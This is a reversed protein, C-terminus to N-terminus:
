HKHYENWDIKIIKNGKILLLAVERDLGIGYFDLNVLTYEAYTTTVPEHSYLGDFFLPNVLEIRENNIEAIFTLEALNVIYLTSGHYKFTSFVQFGWQDLKIEFGKSKDRYGLAEGNVPQGIKDLAALTLKTPDPIAKIRVFGNGHGLNALLTYGNEDKAVTNTCTSETFFTKGTSKQFFYATGGWEGSCDSYVIYFDDEFLIPRNKLPFKSKLKIWDNNNWVYITKGALGALQGNIIWHYRFKKTNLKNALEQDPDFNELKFCAFSGNEFLSVLRNDYIVSYSKPFNKVVTKEEEAEEYKESFYPNKLIIQATDFEIYKNSITVKLKRGMPDRYLNEKSLGSDPFSQQKFHAIIKTEYNAPKNQAMVFAPFGFLLLLFPLNKPLM